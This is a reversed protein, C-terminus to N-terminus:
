TREQPLSVRTVPLRLTFQTGQGPHSTVSVTGGHLLAIHKVIALGLGTGGTARSREKHVRYFREFLRPLHEAAIGCGNDSVTLRLMGPSKHLGLVVRPTNAHRLANTVLNVLAQELLGVHGCFVTEPLPNPDTELVAGRLEAESRCLTCVDQLLGDVRFDAFGREAGSQRREIAALSLIDQVLSNLRRSQRTLIDFCTQRSADDLPTDSLTEVTSLIATLPTKIEHSVNAVFDARMGELHRIETLDTLILLLHPEGDRVLRVARALLTRAHEADGLTVERVEPPARVAATERVYGSLAPCDAEDLRFGESRIRTGFLTEAALNCAPVSGDPAVLLLPMCIANFLRDYNTREHDLDTIQQRLRRSMRDVVRMLEKLPGHKVEPIEADRRGAAIADAANVLRAFQPRICFAAYGLLVLVTVAGLLLALAMATQTRELPQRVVSLPLGTRLVCGSEMRLACYMMMEGSSVSTRVAVAGRRDATKVEPRDAFDRGLAELYESEAIVRGTPGVLTLRLPYGSYRLFRERVAAINGADLLPRVADELLLATRMLLRRADRRCATDYDRQLDALAVVATVAVALAAIPLLLRLLPRRQPARSM